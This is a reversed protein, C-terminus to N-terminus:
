RSASKLEHEIREALFMKMLSQSIPHGTQRSGLMAHPLQLRFFLITQEQDRKCPLLPFNPRGRMASRANLSIIM